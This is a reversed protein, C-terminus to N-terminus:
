ASDPIESTIMNAPQCTPCWYTTRADQGQKRAEIATGCRRCPRGRRRYVWLSAAPDLRSTTRRLARYTVIRAGSAPSVNALMLRRLTAVIEHLTDSALASVPTFPNTRCLFLVESKYVNGAGAITRQDLIVDAIARTAHDQMRRVIGGADFTTGLLDPGLGGLVQSREVDRARVFEAVPLSFAVAVYSATGVAVRMEQRPRRWREGPRYLHWSGHMRMHTRLILGGSFAILLHKGRASVAEVRRGVIPEDEAVRTLSTLVSDFRTVTEGALATHLTRAARFITDGEPM